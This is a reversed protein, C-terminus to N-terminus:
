KWTKHQHKLRDTRQPLKGKQFLKKDGRDATGFNGEVRSGDSMIMATQHRTSSRPEATLGIETRQLKGGCMPCALPTNRSAVSLFHDTEYACADCKFEYLPM